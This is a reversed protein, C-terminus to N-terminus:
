KLAVTEGQELGSVIETMEAGELGVEVYRMTLLEDELVYVFMGDEAKHIADGPVCLVDSKRGLEVTITGDQGQEMIETNVPKLYMQTEWQERNVTEVEVRSEAGNQWCILTYIKGEEFFDAYTIDETIFYCSDLNSITIITEDKESYTDLLSQQMSTIEGSIGAIIKGGRVEDQYQKLRKENLAISDELDQISDHYKDEIDILAEEHEEKAEETKASHAYLTKEEDIDFNRLEKMHTLELNQHKIEYELEEISEELDEVDVSALLDGKSVIDGKKVTVQEILREDVGFALKEYETPTYTFQIEATQVVEGYEAVATAYGTDEEDQVLTIENEEKNSTGCASCVCAFACMLTGATLFVSKKRISKKM